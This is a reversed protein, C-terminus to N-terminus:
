INYIKTLNGCMLNRARHQAGATYRAIRKKDYTRKTYSPQINIPKQIADCTKTHQTHQRRRTPSTLRGVPRGVLKLRAQHHGTLRGFCIYPM